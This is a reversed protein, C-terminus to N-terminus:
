LSYGLKSSIDLAAAVIITEIDKIDQPNFRNAPGSVSLAAVMEGDSDFIPAAAASTGLDREEISEAYKNAVISGLETWLEQKSKVMTQSNMMSEIFSKSQYALLVKGSAGVTLPLSQGLQIMHKISYLSEYQKICVRAEGELIYLNVTEKLQDRLRLMPEEAVEKLEMSRSAAHGLFYLQRGLYYRGTELSKEVLMNKELTALLRTTTSKALGTKKAIDTLTLQDNDKDFCHLVDIARQVSRIIQSDKEEKWNM